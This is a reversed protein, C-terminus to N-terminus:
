VNLYVRESFDQKNAISKAVAEDVGGRTILTIYLNKKLANARLIRGEAQLRDVVSYTMSAFIMVPCDPLEWGASIQSQVIFVYADTNKLLDIVYGRDPTDGTMVYPNFGADTLKDHLQDIQARYKAFVIMKPFEQAYELIRELKANSFFEGRTYEDGSLVGNEIQHVKGLQVIPEPWELKAERIRKKQVPTLDVYENKYMQAPVDFWDDLRGVYGLKQVAAALRDKTVDDTKPSWVERGPMPLQIYFASRFKYFDWDYGLIKAAGWVTMPSRTITATCLYLRSPKTRTLYEDLAEFRQSAKPIIVRKRQRTSPTVGLMGHSEDVIVTDFHALVKHDRKFLDFTITTISQLKKEGFKNTLQTSEREWNGDEKQTKPCIVLINGRALMLAIRTKGSGTGLFLGTKKPDDDLIRKQHAYLNM